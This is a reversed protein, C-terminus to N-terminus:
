KSYKMKRIIYMTIGLLFILIIPVGVNVIRLVSGKNMVKEKNLPRVEIQRSRLEIISQDGMM